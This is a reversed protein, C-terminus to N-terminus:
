RPLKYRIILSAGKGKLPEQLIQDDSKMNKRMVDCCVSMRHNNGPYCGVGRHLDGSKVDINLTGKQEATKFMKDLEDQFDKLTPPLNREFM